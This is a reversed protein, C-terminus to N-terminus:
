LRSGVTEAKRKLNVIGCPVSLVQVTSLVPNGLLCALTILHVVPLCGDEAVASDRGSREVRCVITIAAKCM